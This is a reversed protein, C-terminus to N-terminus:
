VVNGLIPYLFLISILMKGKNYFGNKENPKRLFIFLLEELDYIFWGLEFKIAFLTWKTTGSSLLMDQLSTCIMIDFTHKEFVSALM